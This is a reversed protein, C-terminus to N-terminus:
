VQHGGEDEGENGSARSVDQIDIGGDVYGNAKVKGAGEESVFSGRGSLGSAGSNSRPRSNLAATLGQTVSDAEGFSYTHSYTSKQDVSARDSELTRPPRRPNSSSRNGGRSYSSSFSSRGVFSSGSNGSSTGFARIPASPSTSAGSPSRSRTRTRNFSTQRRSKSSSVDSDMMSLFQSYESKVQDLEGLLKRLNVNKSAEEELRRKAQLICTQSPLTAQLYPLAYWNWPRTSDPIRM